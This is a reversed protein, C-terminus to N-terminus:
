DIFIQQKGIMEGRCIACHSGEALLTDICNDCFRGHGCPVCVFSHRIAELCIGCSKEEKEMQMSGRRKRMASVVSKFPCILKVADPYREATNNYIERLTDTSAIATEKLEKKFSLQQVEDAENTHNHRDIVHFLDSQKEIKATGKCMYKQFNVCRLMINNKTDKKKCYMFDENIYVVTGKRRGETKTYTSM